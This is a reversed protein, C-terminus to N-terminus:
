FEPVERGTVACRFVLEARKLEHRAKESRKYAKEREMESDDSAKAASDAELIASTLQKLAEEVTPM